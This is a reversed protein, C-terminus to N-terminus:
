IRPRNHLCLRYNMSEGAGAQTGGLIGCIWFHGNRVGWVPSCGGSMRSTCNRGGREERPKCIGGVFFRTTTDTTLTIQFAKNNAGLPSIVFQNVGHVLATSTYVQGNGNNVYTELLNGGTFEYTITFTNNSILPNPPSTVQLTSSTASVANASRVNGVIREMALEVESESSTSERVVSQTHATTALLFTAASSVSAFISLAIMLETLTFARKSRGMSARAQIKLNAMKMM